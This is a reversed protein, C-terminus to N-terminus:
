EGKTDCYALDKEVFYFVGWAYENFGKDQVSVLVAKATEVIDACGKDLNRLGNSERNVEGYPIDTLVLDVCKDPLCPLVDMCDACTIRNIYQEM